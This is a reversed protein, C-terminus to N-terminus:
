LYFKSNMTKFLTYYADMYALAGTTMEQFATPEKKCFSYIITESHKLHEPEVLTHVYFHMLSKDKKSKVKYKNKHVLIGDLFCKFEPGSTLESALHFGLSTAINKKRYYEYSIEALYDGERLLYQSSCMDDTSVGFHCATDKFLQHHTPQISKRINHLGFEDVNAYLLLAAMANAEWPDINRWFDSLRLALDLIGSPTEKYFPWLTSFFIKLEEQSLSKKKFNEGFLYLESMGPHSEIEKKLEEIENVTDDYLKIM